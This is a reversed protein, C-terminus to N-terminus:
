SNGLEAQDHSSRKAGDLISLVQFLFSQRFERWFYRDGPEDIGRNAREVRVAIERIGRPLKM